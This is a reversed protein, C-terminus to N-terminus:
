ARLFSTRSAPDRKVREVVMESNVAIPSDATAVDQAVREETIWSITQVTIGGANADESAERQHHSRRGSSRPRERTRELLWKNGVTRGSEREINEKNGEQVSRSLSTGLNAANTSSAVPELPSKTSNNPDSTRPGSAGTGSSCSKTPAFFVPSSFNPSPNRIKTRYNLTHMVVLGSLVTYIGTAFNTEIDIADPPQNRVSVIIAVLLEFVILVASTRMALSVLKSISGNTGTKLAKRDRSMTLEYILCGSVFMNEVATGWFSMLLLIRLRPPDPVGREMVQYAVAVMLVWTIHSVFSFAWLLIAIAKMWAKNSVACLRWCFFGEASAEMLTTLLTPAFTQFLRSGNLDLNHLVRNIVTVFNQRPRAGIKIAMYVIQVTALWYVLIRFGVRDKRFRVFYIGIETLFYGFLSGHVALLITTALIQNLSVRAVLGAM